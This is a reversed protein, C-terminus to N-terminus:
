ADRHQALPLNVFLSTGAGPQSEVRLTGALLTAREEIGLLGLHDGHLCRQRWNQADFGRGDDEVVVLVSAVRLHLLIEVSRAQGHRVANTLAEQAIRYLAVEIENQLRAGGELGVGAVQVALGHRRASFEGLKQLAPMLGLADLASPRLTRSLDHVEGLTQTALALLDKLQATHDGNKVATLGAILATLSQGTQDHLERAVRKREEEATVLLKRVLQRNVAHKQQLAGMMDNFAEALEGLEDRARVPARAQYNGAKVTRTVEVLDQVPRTVLRMLWWAGLLGVVGIVMTTVIIQRTHWVIEFNVHSDNLGVSV